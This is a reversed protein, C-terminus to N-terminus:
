SSTKCSLMEGIEMEEVLESYDAESLKAEIFLYDPNLREQPTPDLLRGTAIEKVVSHHMFRVEGLVAIFDFVLWGRVAVLESPYAKELIAANNHCQNEKPIWIGDKHDVEVRRLPVIVSENLREFLTLAYKKRDLAPMLLFYRVDQSSKCAGAYLAHQKRGKLLVISVLAM